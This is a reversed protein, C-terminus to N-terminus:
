QNSKTRTKKVTYKRPKTTPIPPLQSLMETLERHQKGYEAVLKDHEVKLVELEYYTSGDKVLTPDNDRKGLEPMINLLEEYKSTWTNGKAFEPPGVNENGVTKKLKSIIDNVSERYKYKKGEIAKEIIARRREESKTGGSKTKRGKRIRKTKYKRKM